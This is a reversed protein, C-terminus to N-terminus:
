LSIRFARLCCFIHDFAACLQAIQAAGVVLRCCLAEVADSEAGLRSPSEERWSLSYGQALQTPGQLQPRGARAQQARSGPCTKNVGHQLENLRAAIVRPLVIEGVVILVIPLVLALAFCCVASKAMFSSSLHVVM